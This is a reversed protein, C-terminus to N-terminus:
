KILSGQVVDTSGNQLESNIGLHCAGEVLEKRSEMRLSKTTTGQEECPVSRERRQGSTLTASNQPSSCTHDDVMGTGGTVAALPVCSSEAGTAKSREVHCVRPAIGNIESVTDSSKADKRFIARFDEFACETSVDVAREDPSDRPGHAEEIFTCEAASNQMAADSELSCSQEKKALNQSAMSLVTGLGQNTEGESEAEGRDEIQLSDTGTHNSANAISGSCFSVSESTFARGESCVDLVQEKSSLYSFQERWEGGERQRTEVEALKLRLQQTRQRLEELEREKKKMEREFEMEEAMEERIRREREECWAVLEEGELGMRRGLEELDARSM